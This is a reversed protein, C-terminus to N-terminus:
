GMSCIHFNCNVHKPFKNLGISRCYSLGSYALCYPDIECDDFTNMFSIEFYNKLQNLEEIMKKNKSFEGM